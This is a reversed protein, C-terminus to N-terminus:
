RVCADELQKRYGSAAVSALGCQCSADTHRQRSQGSSLRRTPTRCCSSSLLDYAYSCLGVPQAGRGSRLRWREGGLDM